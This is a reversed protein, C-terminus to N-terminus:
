GGSGLLGLIGGGIAGAATGIGPVVSGMMAGSAAGSLAGAAPDTYYPTTSVSGPIGTLLSNLGGMQQYPRNQYFGYQQEMGGLMNQAQNQIQSGGGLLAMGPSAQLQAISGGQGLANSMDALAQNYAGGYINGATTAMQSAQVPASGEINRGAGAFQSALNNQIQNDSMQVMRQLAPNTQPSLYAGSELTNYQNAASNAVGQMAPAAQNQLQSFGQEQLPSFPAIPQGPWFSPPYSGYTSAGQQALSQYYPQLYAPPGTTSTSQHGKSSM